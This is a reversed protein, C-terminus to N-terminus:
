SAAEVLDTVLVNRFCARCTVYQWEEGTDDNVITAPGFFSTAGCHPCASM